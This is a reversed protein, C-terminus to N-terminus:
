GQGPGGCRGLAPVLTDRLASGQENCQNLIQIEYLNFLKELYYNLPCMRHITQTRMLFLKRPQLSVLHAQNTYM